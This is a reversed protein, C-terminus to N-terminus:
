SRLNLTWILPNCCQLINLNIRTFSKCMCITKQKKNLGLNGYLCSTWDHHLNQLPTHSPFHTYDDILPRKLCLYSVVVLSEIVCHWHCMNVQFPHVPIWPNFQNKVILVRNYCSFVWCHISQGFSCLSNALMLTLFRMPKSLPCVRIASM